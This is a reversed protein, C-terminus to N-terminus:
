VHLGHVCSHQHQRDSDTSDTHQLPLGASYLGDLKCCACGVQMVAMRQADGVRELLLLVAEQEAPYHEMQQGTLQEIKQFQEVDYQTVITLSRGSRCVALISQAHCQHRM